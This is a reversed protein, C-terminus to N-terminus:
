LQTKSKYTGTVGSFAHDIRPGLGTLQKDIGFGWRLEAVTAQNILPWVLPPYLDPAKCGDTALSLIGKPVPLKLQRVAGPLGGHARNITCIDDFVNHGVKAIELLSGGEKLKGYLANIGPFPVEKDNGGAILLIPLPRSPPPEPVGALSVVVKIAPDAAATAIATGGGASHGVIGAESPVVHGYFISSPTRSDQWVAGLAAEQQAVNLKLDFKLTNEVADTIDMSTMDPAVVIFGWTALHATLFTSQDPFGSFGHSFLVVPFKGPAMPLGAYADETVGDPFSKPILKQFVAPLFSRVHYVYKAKGAASSLPAPYWIVVADTGVHTSFTGAAYPGAGAYRTFAAAPVTTTTAATSPPSKATTSGCGAFEIAAVLAISLGAMGAPIRRM